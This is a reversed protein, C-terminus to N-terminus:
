KEVFCPPIKLSIVRSRPFKDSSSHYYDSSKDFYVQAQLPIKNRFKAMRDYDFCRYRNVGGTALDKSFVIENCLTNKKYLAGFIYVSDKSIQGNQKCFMRYDRTFSLHVDVSKIIYSTDGNVDTKPSDWGYYLAEKIEDLFVKYKPHNTKMVVDSVQGNEGYVLKADVSLDFDDKFHRYLAKNLRWGCSKQLRWYVNQRDYTYRGPFPLGDKRVFTDVFIDVKLKLSDLVNTFENFEGEFSINRDKFFKKISLSDILKGVNQLLLITKEGSQNYITLHEILEGSKYLNIVYKPSANEIKEKLDYELWGNEEKFVAAEAFHEIENLNNTAYALGQAGYADMSDAIALSEQLRLPKGPIYTLKKAINQLDCWGCYSMLAYGRSAKLMSKTTDVQIGVFGTYIKLPIKKGYHLWTVDVDTLGMPIDYFDIPEDWNIRRELSNRGMYPYFKTIWGKIMDSGCDYEDTEPYKYIKRWHNLNIKGDFINIFEDLIPNLEKSWWELDLRSALKNFSDKLLNWDLKTGNVKIKPIGCSEVLSYTYYESAIAMVMSRSINYDIPSTTSFKVNLPEGTEAPLKQQLSDFLDAIVGHWKAYTTDWSLSDNQIVIATDVGPAVFRDKLADRNYKVHLRIGDLILLWIDDPSIELSYHNAYAHAVVNIFSMETSSSGKVFSTVSDSYAYFMKKGISGRQALEAFYETFGGQEVSIASGGFASDHVSSDVIMVYASTDRVFNEIEKTHSSTKSTVDSHKQECAILLLMVNLLLLFKYLMKMDIFKVM